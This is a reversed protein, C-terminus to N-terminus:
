TGKVGTSEGVRPAPAPPNAGILTGVKKTQRTTQQQRMAMASRLSAVALMLFGALGIVVRTLTWLSTIDYQRSVAMRVQNRMQIADLMLTGSMVLCCLAGLFAFGSFVLSLTRDGAFIAIAVLVFTMLLLTPAISSVSSVLSIRWAPSLFRFPWSRLFVEALQIFITALAIFYGARRLQPTLASPTLLV